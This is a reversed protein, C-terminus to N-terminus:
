AKNFLEPLGEAKLVAKVSPRAEVRAM